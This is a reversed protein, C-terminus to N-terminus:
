RNIEENVPSVPRVAFVLALLGLAALGAATIRAGLYFSHPEYTYVLRHKGSPVAAGRMMRNARYIPAEAGDITLRWGPYFIDALVVLGPRVLVADIEVRQPSYRVITATEAPSSFKGPLFPRLEDQKDQDVWALERPEYVPRNPVHWFPDNSFLMEQMPLDREERGMGQFPRLLRRDHVIWARPYADDNRFVQFDEREAWAKQREAGGPGDFADLPPYV